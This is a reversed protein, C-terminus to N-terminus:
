RNEDFSKLRIPTHKSAVKATEELLPSEAAPCPRAEDRRIVGSRAAKQVFRRHGAVEGPPLVALSPCRRCEEVAGVQSRQVRSPRMGNGLPQRVVQVAIIRERVEHFHLKTSNSVFTKSWASEPTPQKANARISSFSARTRIATDSPPIPM